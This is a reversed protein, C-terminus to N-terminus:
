HAWLSNVELAFRYQTILSTLQQYISNFVDAKINDVAERLPSLETYFTKALYTQMLCCCIVVVVPAVVVVVVVPCIVSRQSSLSETNLFAGFVGFSRLRGTVSKRATKLTHYLFQGALILCSEKKSLYIGKAAMNCNTFSPRHTKKFRGGM